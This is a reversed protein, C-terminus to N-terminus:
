RNASMSFPPLMGWGVRNTSIWPWFGAPKTPFSPIVADTVPLYDRQPCAGCKVQPKGCLGTIWENRCAPQYGSKGTNRSEWRQPYVDDRGRFLCRFLAIKEEAPSLNTVRARTNEAFVPTSERIRHQHAKLSEIEALIKGRVEDLGALRAEAAAIAEEIEPHPCESM